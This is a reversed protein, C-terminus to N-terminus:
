KNERSKRRGIARAEVVDMVDDALWAGECHQLCSM